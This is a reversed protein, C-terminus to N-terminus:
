RVLQSCEQTLWKCGGEEKKTKESKKPQEDLGDM